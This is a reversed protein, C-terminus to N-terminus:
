KTSSRALPPPIPYPSKRACNCRNTCCAAFAPLYFQFLSFLFVDREISNMMVSRSCVVEVKGERLGHLAVEM